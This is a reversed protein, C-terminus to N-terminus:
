EWWICANEKQQNKKRYCKIKQIISLLSWAEISEFTVHTKKEKNAQHKQKKSKNSNWHESKERM